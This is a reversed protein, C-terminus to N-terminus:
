KGKDVKIRVLWKKNKELIKDEILSGDIDLISSIKLASLIVDELKEKVKKSSVKKNSNKKDVLKMVDGVKKSFSCGNESLKDLNLERSKYSQPFVFDSYKVGFQNAICFANQIVDAVEGFAEEKMEEQTMKNAKMGIYRCIVQMLEGSEEAFKCGKRSLGVNELSDLKVVDEFAKKM